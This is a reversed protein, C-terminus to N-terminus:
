HRIWISAANATPSGYGLELAKDLNIAMFPANAGGALLATAIGCATIIILLAPRPM